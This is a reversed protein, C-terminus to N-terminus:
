AAPEGQPKTGVVPAPYRKLLEAEVWDQVEEWTDPGFVVEGHYYSRPAQGLVGSSNIGVVIWQRKSVRVVALNNCAAAAVNDALQAILATRQESTM